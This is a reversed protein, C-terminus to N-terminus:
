NATSSSLDPKPTTRARPAYYRPLTLRVARIPQWDMEKKRENLLQRSRIGSTWLCSMTLRGIVIYVGAAVLSWRRHFEWWRVFPWSRMGPRSVIPTVLLPTRSAPTSISGFVPWSLSTTTPEHKGSESTNM